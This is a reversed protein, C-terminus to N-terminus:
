AAPRVRRADWPRGYPRRNRSRITVRGLRCAPPRGPGRDGASVLGTSHQQAKVVAPLCRVIRVTVTQGREDASDPAQADWLPADTSRLRRIRGITGGLQDHIGGRAMAGLTHVVMDLPERSGTRMYERLLFNLVVPRPFKPAREFGGDVADFSAAIDKYTKDLVRTSLVASAKSLAADSKRPRPELIGKGNDAAELIRARRNTWDDTVRDLVTKFGVDGDRDVPPYYGGGLFPKLDPTLFM